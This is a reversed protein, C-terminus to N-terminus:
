NFRWQREAAHFKQIRLNYQTLAYRGDITREDNENETEIAIVAVEILRRRRITELYHQLLKIKFFYNMKRFNTQATMMMMPVLMMM